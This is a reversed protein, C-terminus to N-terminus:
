PATAHGGAHAGPHGHAAAKLVFHRSCYPCVVEHRDEMNLYVAPHGLPGGGGDCRVVATDVEFRELAQM